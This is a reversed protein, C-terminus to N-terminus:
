GPCRGDQSKGKLLQGDGDQRRGLRLRQATKDYHYVNRYSSRRHPDYPAVYEGKLVHTDEITNGNEDVTPHPTMQEVITDGLDAHFISLSALRYEVYVETGDKNQGANKYKAYASDKDFTMKLVNNKNIEFELVEEEKFASVVDSYSMKDPAESRFLMACILVVAVILVLYFLIHKFTSKKKM